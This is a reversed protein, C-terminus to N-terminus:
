KVLPTSSRVKSDFEEQTIKFGSNCIPCYTVYETKYPFIPIFFLTFWKIARSITWRTDNNCHNCHSIDQLKYDQSTSHGFGFLVFM